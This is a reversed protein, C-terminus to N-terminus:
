SYKIEPTTEHCLNDLLDMWMNLVRKYSYKEDLEAKINHVCNQYFEKDYLLKELADVWEDETEAIIGSDGVIETNVGVPSAIVPKYLNFYQILKFGCKGNNFQTDYLPMIGVSFNSMDQIYYDLTWQRFEAHPITKDYEGSNNAIYCFTVEPHKKVIRTVAQEVIELNSLTAQSGIWGICKQNFTDKRYPIYASTYDVTPFILVNENLKRYHDALVENGSVVADAQMVIKDSYDGSFTYVADDVDFIIKCNHRKLYNICTIPLRPIVSKQFIVVDCKSARFLIQSIRKWTQCVYQFFIPVIYKKKKAMYKSVYNKKWFSFSQVDYKKNMDEEYMIIRFNSSAGEKCYLTFICIKKRQM